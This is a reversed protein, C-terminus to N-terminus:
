SSPAPPSCGNLRVVTFTLEEDDYRLQGTEVLGLYIRDKLEAVVVLDDALVQQPDSEEADVEKLHAVRRADTRGLREVRWLRQDGQNNDERPPLVRVKGRSM